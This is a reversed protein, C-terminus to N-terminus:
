ALELTMLILELLGPQFVAILIQQVATNVIVINIASLSIALHNLGPWRLSGSCKDVRADLMLLLVMLPLIEVGIADRNVSSNGFSDSLSCVIVVEVVRKLILVRAIRAVRPNSASSPHAGYGLAMDTYAAVGHLLLKLLILIGHVCRVARRRQLVTPKLATPVGVDVPELGRLPVGQRHALGCRNLPIVHIEWTTGVLGVIGIWILM